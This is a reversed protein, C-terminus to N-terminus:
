PETGSLIEGAVGIVTPAIGLAVFAPLFCLGLPLLCWVGVRQARRLAAAQRDRRLEVATSRLAGALKSGSTACRRAAASLARYGPSDPLQAWALEPESGLELLRGVRRLPGIADVLEARAPGLATGSEAAAIIAEDVARIAAEPPAGAALCAAILDLVVELRHERRVRDRRVGQAGSSRPSRSGGPRTLRLVQHSLRRSQEVRPGAVLM